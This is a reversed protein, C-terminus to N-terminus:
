FHKGHYSPIPVGAPLASSGSARGGTVAPDRCSATVALEAAVCTLAVAVAIAGTLITVAFGRNLQRM